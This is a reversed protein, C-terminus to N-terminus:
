GPGVYKLAVHAPRLETTLCALLSDPQVEVAHVKIRPCPIHRCAAKTVGQTRVSRLLLLTMETKVVRLLNTEICKAIRIFLASQLFGRGTM